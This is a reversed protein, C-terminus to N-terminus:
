AKQIGNTTQRKKAGRYAAVLADCWADLYAGARPAAALRPDGVVGDPAGRRLDPYFLAHADAVAAVRGRRRATDRVADPRLGLLLSTEFEGAHQGAAAPSIGFRASAHHWRRALDAIGHVVVVRAPRAAAPWTAAGDRLLADNGGHASFVVLDRFGGRALSALLDALVARLTEWRLTITGPFGAHEASCGFALAPLRVSEPVRACFRAALADAIWTDTAFPLHPGHQETAGLPVVATRRGARLAAALEPWCLEALARPPAADALPAAAAVPRALAYLPADRNRGPWRAQDLGRAAIARLVLANVMVQHEFLAQAGPLTAPLALLRHRDPALMRRARRLLEAEAPAGRRTLALLAAPRAFLAQFPGHAFDLLDCVPPPAVFLGEGITRALHDALKDYGGSALLVLEGALLDDPLRATARAARRMAAAIRDPALELARAPAGAATAIAAALRHAIAYGALPGAVRLLLGTEVGGPLPVIRGGARTVAALAARRAPDASRARVATVAIVGLWGGADHLALRANPSLGQSFVILADRRDARATIFAGAPVARAPLGADALLSALLQAHAASSGVGTTLIARAARPLFPLPPLRQAAARRVLEPAAQM